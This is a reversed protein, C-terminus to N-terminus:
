MKTWIETLLYVLWIILGKRIDWAVVNIWFRQKSPGYIYIQGSAFNHEKVMEECMYYKFFISSLLLPHCLILHNSLM